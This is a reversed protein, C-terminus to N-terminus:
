FETGNFLPLPSLAVALAAASQALSRGGLELAMRGTVVVALAQAIVSFLRLGVLSVGFLGLGIRELFPTLPPYPVFGWDLHLADSLVQLEDRHLGYRGNTLLHAVAVMGGISLLALTGTRSRIDIPELDGLKSSAM